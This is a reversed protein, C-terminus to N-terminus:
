PNTPAEIVNDALLAVLSAPELALDGAQLALPDVFLVRVLPRELPLFLNIVRDLLEVSALPDHDLHGAVAARRILDRLSEPRRVRVNVLDTLACQGRQPLYEVAIVFRSSSISSNM